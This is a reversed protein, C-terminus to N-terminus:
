RAGKWLESAIADILKDMPKKVEGVKGSVKNVYIAFVIPSRGAPPLVYGSLASVADLTGTKARIAHEKAWGSFRHRLTGDVGGISLQALLEPGLTPDLSASRLLMTTSWATIRDVEFLGSGNKMVIGAEFAGMDRLMKEAAESAAEATAPRGKAAAGAAKFIMEAAFNDSDKGLAHLLAGLPQSRHSVLLKKQSAGGLKVEAPVEIGVRQLAAKLAYGALLRPDDVRRVVHALRGAEPVSGGLRASLKQGNPVLSVLVKEPSRKKSTMVRGGLEVFGPPDVDVLAHEGDKLPRVTFLVTNGNISVPAVPARFWAWENPQLDFEPPVYRDDFLSQDVFMARVRRVGLAKLEVALAAVDRTRLSPDGDGRLVLDDVGDSSLQGYIGTHFRFGAGLTRLALAATVIKANSAPYLPRHEDAAALVAGSQVDVVHVGAVGSLAQVEAVFGKVAERIPGADVAKAVVVPKPSPEDSRARSSADLLLAATLAVGALRSSIRM